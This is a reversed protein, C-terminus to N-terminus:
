RGMTLPAAQMPSQWRQELWGGALTLAQCVGFYFFAVAVMFEVSLDLHRMNLIQVAKTLEIVGISVLTTDKVIVSAQSVLAPLMRRSAQPLAVMAMRQFLSLGLVKAIRMQHPDISQLGGRIMECVTAATHTSLALVAQVMPPAPVVLFIAVVYFVLPIARLLDVVAAVGSSLGPWNLYRAVGLAIGLPFSILMTWCSIQVTTGVARGLLMWDEPTLASLHM